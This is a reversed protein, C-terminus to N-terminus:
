SVIDLVSSIKRECVTLIAIISGDIERSIWYVSGDREICDVDAILIVFISQDRTIAREFERVVIDVLIRPMGRANYIILPARSIERATVARVIHTVEEDCRTARAPLARKQAYEVCMIKKDKGTDRLSALRIPAVRAFIRSVLTVVRAPIVTSFDRVIQDLQADSAGRLIDCVRAGGYQALMRTSTARNLERSLIRASSGLFLPPIDRLQARIDIVAAM